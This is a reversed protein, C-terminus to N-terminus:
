AAPAAELTHKVKFSSIIIVIGAVIVIIGLTPVYALMGVMPHTVLFIGLIVQM